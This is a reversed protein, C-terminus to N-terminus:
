GAQRWDPLWSSGMCLDASQKHRYGWSRARSFTQLTFSCVFLRIFMLISVSSYLRLYGVLVKQIACLVKNLIKYYGIISFVRFFFIYM